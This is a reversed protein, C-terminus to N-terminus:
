ERRDQTCGTDCGRMMLVCKWGAFLPVLLSFFSLFRVKGVEEGERHKALSTPQVRGKGGRGGAWYGNDERLISRVKGERVEGLGSWSTKTLTTYRKEGNGKSASKLSFADALLHVKRRTEKDCPPLTMSSPGGLNELFRRIQQELTSLDVIRNPLEIPGDPDARAAALMAKLGKKGGKKETLPDSAVELRAVQWKRKNEAKKARDQEWQDRLNEPLGTNKFKKKRESTPPTNECHNLSPYLDDSRLSVPLSWSIKTITWTSTVTGSSHSCATAIRGTRAPFSTKM